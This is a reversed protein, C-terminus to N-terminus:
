DSVVVKSTETFTSVKSFLNSFYSWKYDVEMENEGPPLPWVMYEDLTITDNMSKIILPHRYDLGLGNLQSLSLGTGLASGTEEISAYCAEPLVSRDIGDPLHLTIDGSFTSALPSNPLTQFAAILHAIDKLPRRRNQEGIFHTEIKVPQTDLYKIFLETNETM